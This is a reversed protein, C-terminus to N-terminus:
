VQEHGKKNEIDFLECLTIQNRLTITAIYKKKLFLKSKTNPQLKQSM